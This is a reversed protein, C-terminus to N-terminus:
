DFKLVKGNKFADEPKCFDAEPTLASIYFSLEEEEGILHSIGIVFVLHFQVM